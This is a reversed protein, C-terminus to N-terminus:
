EVVIQNIVPANAGNPTLTIQAEINSKNTLNVATRVMRLNQSDNEVTVFTFSSDGDKKVAITITAGTPLSEYFVRVAKCKELVIPTKIIAIARNSGLKDIGKTSGNTWSVFLQDGSTTISNITASSGQSCAYEASIAWQFKDDAKYVSYIRYDVALLPRKGPIEDEDWWTDEIGDWRYIKAMDFAAVKYHSVGTTVNYIRMFSNMRAGGRLYVIKGESGVQAFLVTGPKIFANIASTSNTKTQVGCHLDGEFAALTTIVANEELDLANNSFVDANDVSAVVDGDGICLTDMHICMPKNANGRLFTQFTDTWTADLNYRGLKTSTAYYLYGNYYHGGAHAGNTNTAALTWTSTGIAYKWIKGSATSLAYIDGSKVTVLICAEDPVNTSTDRALALQCTLRGPVTHIDVNILEQFGAHDYKGAGEGNFFKGFKPM